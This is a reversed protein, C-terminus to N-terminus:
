LCGQVFEIPYMTRKATEEITEFAEYVLLHLRNNVLGLPIQLDTLESQNCGTLYFLGGPLLEIYLQLPYNNM